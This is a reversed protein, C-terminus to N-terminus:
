AEESRGAWDYAAGLDSWYHADSPGLRTATEYSPVSEDLKGTIGYMHTLTGMADYYQPNDRDWKIATQISAPTHQEFFLDGVGRRGALYICFLLVFPSAFRLALKKPTVRTPSLRM